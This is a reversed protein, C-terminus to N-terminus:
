EGTLLRVIKREIVSLQRLAGRLAGVQESREAQEVVDEQEQAMYIARDETQTDASQDEETADNGLAPALSKPVSSANNIDVLERLTVGKFKERVFSLVRPDTIDSTGLENKAMNARYQIRKERPSMKLMTANQDTLLNLTIRGIAVSVFKSEGISYKDIATLLGESAAQIHDMYELHVEPVKYWFRKVRNLVLPLNNEHLTRRIRGMRRYVTSLARRKPGRYNAMAWSAFSYNISLRKLPATRGSRFAESLVEDFADQRERFYVRASIMNRKDFMIFKIFKKYLEDGKKDSLLLRRFAMETEVLEQLLRENAGGGGKIGSRKIIDNMSAVFRWYIKDSNQDNVNV